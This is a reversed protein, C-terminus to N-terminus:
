ISLSMQSVEINVAKRKMLSFILRRLERIYETKCWGEIECIMLDVLIDNMMREEFKKRALENVAKATSADFILEPKKENKHFQKDESQNQKPFHPQQQTPEVRVLAREIGTFINKGNTAFSYGNLPSGCTNDFRWGDPLSDYLDWYKYKEM